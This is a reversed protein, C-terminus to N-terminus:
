SVIFVFQVGFDKMNQELKCYLQRAESLLPSVKERM